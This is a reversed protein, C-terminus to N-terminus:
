RALRLTRASLAGRLGDAITRAEPPPQLAGARFSRAADDAGAPEVGIVRTRPWLRRSALATGSLLGGGGVPLLLLDPPSTQAALEILVTGQGAIVRPDDYPHVLTAGTEAVLAAAAAERAALTPECERVRGGYGEVAARKIRPAGRPMVIYAPIGRLRAARALAAAHNGSSHTAVGHAAAADDLSFVANCAGRSKFAGASQLNECKFEVAAGLERSLEAASLVPTRQVYPAIRRAAAQIDDFDPDAQAGM